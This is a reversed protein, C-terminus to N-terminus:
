LAVARSQIQRILALIPEINSKKVFDYGRLKERRINADRVTLAGLMHMCWDVWTLQKPNSRGRLAVHTMQARMEEPFSDAIWGDLVAGAPAGSVSFLVMPKGDMSPWHDKVWQHNTMKYYIVPAGLVLFDYASPDTTTDNIDFVPLGAAEGIWQAYQATSGYKSSFFVAGKM